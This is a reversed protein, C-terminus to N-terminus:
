RWTSLSWGSKIQGYEIRRISLNCTTRGLRISLQLQSGKEILAGIRFVTISPCAGPTLVTTTGGLVVGTSLATVITNAIRSRFTDINAKLNAGWAAVCGAAGACVAWAREDTDRIASSTLIWGVHTLRAGITKESFCFSRSSTGWTPFQLYNKLYSRSVIRLHIVPLKVWIKRGLPPVRNDAEWYKIM